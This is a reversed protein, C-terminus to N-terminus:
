RNKRIWAAVRLTAWFDHTDNIYSDLPYHKIQFRGDPMLQVAIREFVQGRSYANGYAVLQLATVPQITGTKLEIITLRSKWYALRDMTGAYGHTPDSVRHEILQIELGLERKADEWALLYGFYDGSQIEPLVTMPTLKMQDMGACIGHVIRGRERGEENFFTETTLGCEGMEGTVSVFPKGGVRYTHTSEDLEISNM